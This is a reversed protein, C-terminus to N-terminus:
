MERLVAHCEEKLAVLIKDNVKTVEEETLTRDAARYTLTFAVSKTGSLLQKGRYVDFLTVKELLEGGHAKIISEIDCVCNEENVTLALDRTMAPYKPLPRYFKETNAKEVLLDFNLECCIARAGIGYKELVDPHVEGIIGIEVCDYVLTACRGPHFTEIKEEPIYRCEYIGLKNLFETVMGKLTFFDKDPGYVAVCMSEKEEPLPDGEHHNNFFTTGIEFAAVNENNRSYNRALVELMNPILTTRMVSTDEGLPNLLKILKRGEANEALKISDVGKPSVFSYTQIESAGLATMAEKSLDRLRQKESKGAETNGRPLTVPLKDFGYIRGIEEVFDIETELDLRVTPPTVTITNGLHMTKMELRHFIDIMEKASLDIGLVQNIRDVRVKVPKAEAKEPYVDVSGKLVTGANLLEILRCVRNCAEEALNPDIGKEFRSSAETRLTLKKSTSRVSDANFNAAEILITDTDEQIESNQGGMVGAIAVARQADKILLMDKTMKRETGDLTTFIEGEQATDVSIKGGKVNRIDFAHMPQGYELMVYNTIDVINNIPRMGAYILRQQLWWPSQEIKINTVVKAVYRKCLDPRKIEVEIFDKCKGEGKEECRTEPYSLETEFTAAAERAMGIMSLCDPRNPTIEFDIVEGKLNLAEVISMGLPYEKELIWIGDKHAVPVVKDEFGLEGASCLMGFSEVGRLKGKKITVGEPKKPQGHLPGPIKSGHLAVPVYNGVAINSAGTVIQIPEEAGVDIKTIVLKDADPHKDISLIKGIVVNEINEGFFEVTELNSGSMIMRDCFKDINEDVNTYEKLWQIPVLM